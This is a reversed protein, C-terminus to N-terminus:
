SHITEAGILPEHISGKRGDTTKEASNKMCQQLNREIPWDHVLFFNFLLIKILFIGLLCQMKYKYQRCFKDKLGYNLINSASKSSFDCIKAKTCYCWICFYKGTAANLGYAM